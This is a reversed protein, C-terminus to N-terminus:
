RCTASDSAFRGTVRRLHHVIADPIVGRDGFTMNRPLDDSGYESLLAERLVEPMAAPHFIHVHKCCLLRGSVPDRAFAQQRQTTRHIPPPQPTARALRTDRLPLTKLWGTASSPRGIQNRSAGLQEGLFPQRRGAVRDRVDDERLPEVEVRRARREAWGRRIPALDVLHASLEDQGILELRPRWRRFQSGKELVANRRHQHREARHLVHRRPTRSGEQDIGICCSIAAM